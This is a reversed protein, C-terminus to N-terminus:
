KKPERFARIVEAVDKSELDKAVLEGEPTWVSVKAANNRSLWLKIGKAVATVAASGLIITLTIGFDQTEDGPERQVEVPADTLLLEEQLSAAYLDAEKASADDFKLIFKHEM